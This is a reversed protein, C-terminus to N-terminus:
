NGMADPGIYIQGGDLSSDEADIADVPAAAEVPPVCVYDSADVCFKQQPGCGVALLGLALTLVPAVVSARLFKM